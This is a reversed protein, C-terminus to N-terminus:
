MKLCNYRRTLEKTIEECLVHYKGTYVSKDVRDPHYITVLKMLTKKWGKEQGDLLLPKWEEEPRHKPPMKEFLFAVLDKHLDDKHEQLLKMENVLQDMFVKRKNQWEEDEKQQAANQIEKLMNTASNFWDMCHLNRNQGIVQSFDMVHKLYDRGKVKSIPDKMVKLYVWAIRTFAICMIEVDHGRSLAVAHRFKDIVLWVLELNLDEQGAAAQM